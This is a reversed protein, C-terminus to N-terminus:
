SKVEGILYGGSSGYGCSWPWNGLLGQNLNLLFCGIWWDVSSSSKSEASYKHINWKQCITVTYKVKLLNNRYIESKAFCKQFKWRKTHHQVEWGWLNCRTILDSSKQTGRCLASEVNGFWLKLIQNFSKTKKQVFIYEITIQCEQPASGNSFNLETENSALNSDKMNQLLKWTRELEAM